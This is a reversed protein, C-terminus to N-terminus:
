KQQAFDQAIPLVYYLRTDNKHESKEKLLNYKM